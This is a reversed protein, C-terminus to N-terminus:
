ATARNSDIGQIKQRVESFPIPSSPTFGYKVAGRATHITQAIHLLAKSPVCGTWLCDGGLPGDHVLATKAGFASAGSAATLGGAGGGIVILDYKLM